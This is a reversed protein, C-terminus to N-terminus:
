GIRQYLCTVISVCRNKVYPRQHLKIGKFFDTKFKKSEFCIKWLNILLLLTKLIERM